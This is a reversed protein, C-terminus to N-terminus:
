MYKLTGLLPARGGPERRLAGMSLSVRNGSGEMQREFGRTFSGGELNELM